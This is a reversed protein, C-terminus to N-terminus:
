FFILLSNCLNSFPVLGLLKLRRKFIWEGFYRSRCIRGIFSPKKQKFAPVRDGMAVSQVADVTYERFGKGHCFWVICRASWDGLLKCQGKSQMKTGFSHRFESQSARSFEMVDSHQGAPSSIAPFCSCTSHRTCCTSNTSTQEEARTQAM